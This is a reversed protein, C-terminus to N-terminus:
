TDSTRKRERKTREGVVVIRHHAIQIGASDNAGVTATLDPARTLVFLEVWAPEFRDCLPKFMINKASMWETSRRNYDGDIVLHPDPEGPIPSGAVPPAGRVM